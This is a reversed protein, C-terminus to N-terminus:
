GHQELGGVTWRSAVKDGEAVMDNVAVHVNPFADRYAQHFTKFGAPGVLDGAGIGHVLAGDALLRDIAGADGKNWVDAFWKRVLAKNEDSM